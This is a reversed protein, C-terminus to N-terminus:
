KESNGKLNLVGFSSPIHFNPTKSMPNVWSIWTPKFSLDKQKNYKARFIGTEIKNDKILDLKKLSVLSISGEIVFFDKQINSKVAIDNKPWNWNFDFNNNPYAIFDMIRPTPDIELCYYPNLSADTRFFLEVRDSNGISEIGNEKKDIHVENDFVKFNFYLKESSWLARFEIKAPEKKDWASVFDNLIEAKEWLSDEGKCILDLKNNEIYNVNYKKM